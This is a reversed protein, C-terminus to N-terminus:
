GKSTWSFAGPKITVDGLVASMDVEQLCGLVSLGVGDVAAHPGARPGFSRGPPKM